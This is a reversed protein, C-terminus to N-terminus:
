AALIKRDSKNRKYNSAIQIFETPFVDQLFKRMKVEIQQRSHTVHRRKKRGIMAIYHENLSTRKSSFEWQVYLHSMMGPIVLLIHVQNSFVIQIGHACVFVNFKCVFLLFNCTTCVFGCLFKRLGSAMSLRLQRYHFLNICFNIGRERWVM